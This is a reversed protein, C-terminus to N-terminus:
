KVQHKNKGDWIYIQTSIDYMHKPNKNLKEYQIHLKHKEKWFIIEGFSSIKLLIPRKNKKLNFVILSQANVGTQWTTVLVSKRKIKYTEIDIITIGTGENQFTYYIKNKKFFNIKHSSTINDFIVEYSINSNKRKEDLSFSYSPVSIAILLHIIYKM